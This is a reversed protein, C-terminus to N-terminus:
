AHLARPEAVQDSPAVLGAGIAFALVFIGFFFAGVVALAAVIAAGKDSM